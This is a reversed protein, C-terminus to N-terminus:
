SFLPGPIPNIANKAWKQNFEVASDLIKKWTNDGNLGVIIRWPQENFSSSSWRAAETIKIIIDKDLPDNIFARPSWRKAILKNIPIVTDAIKSDM